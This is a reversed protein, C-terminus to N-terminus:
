GDNGGQWPVWRTRVQGARGVGAAAEADAPTQSGCRDRHQREMETFKSVLDGVLVGGVGWLSFHDRQHSTSSAEWGVSELLNGARSPPRRVSCHGM